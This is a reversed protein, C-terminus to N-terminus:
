ATFIHFLPGIIQDHARNSYLPFVHAAYETFRFVRDDLFLDAHDVIGKCCVIDPRKRVKAPNPAHLPSVREVREPFLSNVIRGQHIRMRRLADKLSSGVEPIQADNLSIEAVLLHDSSDAVHICDEKKINEQMLDPRVPILNQLHIRRMDATKNNIVLLPDTLSRSDSQKIQTLFRIEPINRVAAPVLCVRVQEALKVLLMRVVIPWPPINVM